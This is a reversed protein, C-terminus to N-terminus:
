QCVIYAHMCTWHAGAHLAKLLQMGQWAMGQKPFPLSHRWAMFLGELSRVAYIVEVMRKVARM